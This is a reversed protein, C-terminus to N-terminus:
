SAPRTPLGWLASDGFAILETTEFGPYFEPNIILESAAGRGLHLFGNHKEGPDSAIWFVGAQQPPDAGMPSKM